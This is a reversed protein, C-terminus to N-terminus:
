QKDFFEEYEKSVGDAARGIGRRVLHKGDASVWWWAGVIVDQDKMELVEYQNPGISRVQVMNFRGSDPFPHPKGDMPVDFHSVMGPKDKMTDNVSYYKLVNGEVKLDITLSMNPPFKGNSWNSKADNIKWKGDLPNDAAMAASSISAFLVVGLLFTSRLNM